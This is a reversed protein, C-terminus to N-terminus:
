PILKNALTSIAEDAFFAEAMLIEAWSFQARRLLNVFKGRWYWRLSLNDVICQSLQKQDYAAPEM